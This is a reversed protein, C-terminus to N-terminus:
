VTIDGQSSSLDLGVVTTAFDKAEKTDCLTRLFETNSLRQSESTWFKLGEPDADRGFINIFSKNVYEESGYTVFPEDDSGLRSLLNELVYVPKYRGLMEATYLVDSIDAKAGAIARSFQYAQFLEPTLNLSTMGDDFKLLEVGKLHIDVSSGGAKPSVHWDPGDARLVYDSKKGSLVIGDYGAGLDITGSVSADLKYVDSSSTLSQFAFSKQEAPDPNPTGKWAKVADQAELRAQEIQTDCQKCDDLELKGIADKLPQVQEEAAKLVADVWAATGVELKPAEALAPTQITQKVAEFMPSALREIAKDYAQAFVAKEESPMDWSGADRSKLQYQVDHLQIGELEGVKQAVDSIWSQQTALKQTAEAEAQAKQEDALKQAAEAEAQAKQEAALKQAAEAEAQAKQEDALKQAAEAEAQAKQEDALKQAAEAEAQAKQEDALKQAAEAEAQAKQEDALKQAAEAEAQAKQEDALKQAAEAEAQAKQEAAFKQAAEAEAQAKQEAALKQAAEAEAQAKQEDALKQAAEAEARAKQEDALKQAAEAEAQAKQEDALKQAAEAEAQAKQEDALKQAAEAEAQAKQEAALKQAAEAEAQAKQEDALKQAAEAEAQAKQEAALAEAKQKAIRELARRQLAELELKFTEDGELLEVDERKFRNNDLIQNMM